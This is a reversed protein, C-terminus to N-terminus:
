PTLETLGFRRAFQIVAARDALSHKRMVRARYTEITKVSLFLKEAIQKNTLGDAVMAIVERERQSLSDNMAPAGGYPKQPTFHPTAHLPTSREPSHSIFVRGDHLSRIAVAIEELRAAKVLFGSAGATLYQYALEADDKTSYVLIRSNPLKEVLIAIQHSATKDAQDFDIMVVDPLLELLKPEALPFSEAEGVVVLDENSSCLLRVGARMVELPDIIFLRIPM